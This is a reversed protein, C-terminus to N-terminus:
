GKMQDWVRWFAQMEEPKGLSIRAHTELPPFPRGIHINNQRFHAIVQRIPKGTDIM